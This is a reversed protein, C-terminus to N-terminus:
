YGNLIGIAKKVDYDQLGILEDTCVHYDSLKGMDCDDDLIVFSEIDTHDDLWQQIEIKRNTIREGIEWLGNYKLISHTPTRDIIDARIGEFYLYDVLYKFQQENECSVRWSSSIVIKANSKKVITNLREICQVDLRDWGTRFPMYFDEPFPLKPLAVSKDTCLVGDIDLFIIKM